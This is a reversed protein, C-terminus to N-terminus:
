LPTDGNPEENCLVNMAMALVHDSEHYPAHWKLLHVHENIKDVLGVHKALKLMASVGAYNIAQPREALEYKVNNSGIVPNPDSLERFWRNARADALRKLIKKKRAEIRKAFSTKVQFRGHKRYFTQTVVVNLRM